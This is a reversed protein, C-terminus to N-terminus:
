VSKRSQLKQPLEERCPRSLNRRTGCLIRLRRVSESWASQQLAREILKICREARERLADNNQERNQRLTHLEDAMALAALVALKVSDVTGTARAIERMKGDVYKALEEVYAPELDGAVNYTQEYIQVKM